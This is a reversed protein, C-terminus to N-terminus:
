PEEKKAEATARRHYEELYVLLVGIDAPPFRRFIRSAQGVSFPRLKKLKERAEIRLGGVDDYDITEPIRKGEGKNFRNVQERQKKLYGEYKAELEAQRLPEEEWVNEKGALETLHIIDVEPRKLLDRGSVTGELPASGLEELYAVVAEDSGRFRSETLWQDVEGIAEVKENFRRWREETVLGIAHGKETLRLDANDNRLLLRYEARSTFLRYPENTGKM